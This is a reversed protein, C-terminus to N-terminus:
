RAKRTGCQAEQDREKIRKREQRANNGCRLTCFKQTSKTRTYHAKCRPCIALSSPDALNLLLLMYLAGALDKVLIGPCPANMQKNWWVRVEGHRNLLDTVTRQLGQAEVLEKDSRFLHRALWASEATGKGLFEEANRQSMTWGLYKNRKEPDGTRWEEILSFTGHIRAKQGKTLAGFRREFKAFGKGSLLAQIADPPVVRM